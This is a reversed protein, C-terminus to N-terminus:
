TPREAVRAVAARRPATPSPSHRWRRLGPWGRRSMQNIADLALVQEAVVRLRRRRRPSLHRPQPLCTRRVRLGTRNRPTYDANRLLGRARRLRRRLTPTCARCREARRGAAHVSTSCGARADPWRTCAALAPAALRRRRPWCRRCRALPRHPQRRTLASGAQQPWTADGSRVANRCLMTLALNSLARRGAQAHGPDYGGHIQHTQWADIWDDHLREALLLSWAERAAHIRQPDFTDREEALASESPAQLGPKFRFLLDRLVRRAEERRRTELLVAQRQRDSAAAAGAYNQM